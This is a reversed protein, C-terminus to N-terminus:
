HVSCECACIGVYTCTILFLFVTRKKTTNKLCSRVIYGQNAQLWSVIYPQSVEFEYIHEQRPREQTLVLPM